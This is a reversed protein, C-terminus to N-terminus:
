GRPGTGAAEVSGAREMERAEQIDRELFYNLFTRIAAIAGLRGIDEWTPAVATAIIDAALQFTLGVVLWRAYSHWVQRSEHRQGPKFLMVRLGAVFCQVSGISIVLLAMAEIVMEVHGTVIALWEEM